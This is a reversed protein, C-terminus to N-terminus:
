RVMKVKVPRFKGLDGPPVSNPGGIAIADSPPQPLMPPRPQGTQRTAPMIRAKRPGSPLPWIIWAGALLIIGFALGVLLAHLTLRPM